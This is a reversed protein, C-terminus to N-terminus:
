RKDGIDRAVHRPESSDRDMPHIATPRNLPLDLDAIGPPDVSRGPAQWRVLRANLPNPSLPGAFTVESRVLGAVAIESENSASDNESSQASGLWRVMGADPTILSGQGSAVIAGAIRRDDGDRILTFLPTGAPLAFVTDIWHIDIKGSPATASEALRCEILSDCQRLTSREIKLTLPEEVPRQRRIRILPGGDQHLCNSLHIRQAGGGDTELMADMGNLVCNALEIQGSTLSLQRADADLPLTWNIAAVRQGSESCFTCRDFRITNATVNILAAPSIPSKESAVPDSDPSTQWRFDVNRFTTADADIARDSPGAVVITRTDASGLVTIGAVLKLSSLAIPGTGDLRLVSREEPPKANLSAAADNNSPSTTQPITANADEITPSSANTAEDDLSEAAVNASVSPQLPRRDYNWLAAALTAFLLSGATAWAWTHRKNATELRRTRITPPPDAKTRHAISRPMRALASDLEPPGLLSYLESPRAPRQSPERRTCWEIARNLEPPTDPAFRRVDIWRAQEVAALKRLRNGGAFPPRGALLHWWLCGCAYADSSWTPPQGQRIREPALCDYIQPPLESWGRTENPLVIGRIGPVTLVVRGDAQWWLNGASVDGHVLGHGELMVLAHVVQRAINLVARTPLRGRRAVHESLRIGPVEEYAAWLRDAARGSEQFAALYPSDISRGIDVLQQLASECRDTGARDATFSVVHVQRQQDSPRARFQEAYGLTPLQHTLVFPGLVLDEARGAKIETAQFATLVRSQVLADIWVSEFLPLDRALRRVRGAVGRVQEPHALGLRELREVLDVPPQPPV